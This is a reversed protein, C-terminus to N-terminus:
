SRSYIVASRMVLYCEVVLILFGGFTSSQFNQHQGFACWQWVGCCAVVFSCFWVVICVDGVVRDFLTAGFV